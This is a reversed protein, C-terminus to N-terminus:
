VTPEHIKPYRGGVGGGVAFPGRVLASACMLGRGGVGSSAAGRLSLPGFVTPLTQTHGGSGGLEGQIVPFPFVRTAQGPSRKRPVGAGLEALGM